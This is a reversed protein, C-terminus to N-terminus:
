ISILVILGLMGLVLLNIRDRLAFVVPDDNMQGRTTLLMRSQDLLAASPLDAM